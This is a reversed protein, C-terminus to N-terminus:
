KRGKPAPGIGVWVLNFALKEGPHEQNFHGDALSLTETDHLESGCHSCVVKWNANNNPNMDRRKAKM